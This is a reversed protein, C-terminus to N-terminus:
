PELLTWRMVKIPTRHYTHDAHSPLEIVKGNGPDAQIWQKNGLYALVHVGSQTVALDGKKLQSHDLEQISPALTIPRTDQRFGQGMAKATRDYWWFKGAKVLGEANLSHISEVILAQYLSVRLLGSCDIGRSSEGGWIYTSGKFGNLNAIYRNILAEQEVPKQFLAFAFALAFLASGLFVRYKKSSWILFVFFLSAGLLSIIFLGRTLTTSVSLFSLAFLASLSVLLGMRFGGRLSIKM